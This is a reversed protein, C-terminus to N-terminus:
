RKIIVDFANNAAVSEISPLKHLIELLNEAEELDEPNEEASIENSDNLAFEAVSIPIEHEPKGLGLHVTEPSIGSQTPKTSMRPPVKVIPKQLIQHSSASSSTLSSQSSSRSMGSFRRHKKEQWKSGTMRIDQNGSRVNELAEDESIPIPSKFKDFIKGCINQIDGHSPEHGISTFMVHVKENHHAELWELCKEEDRYEIDLEIRYVLAPHDHPTNYAEWMKQVPLKKTHTFKKITNNSPMCMLENCPMERYEGIDVLIVKVKGKPLFEVIEARYYNAGCYIWSVITEVIVFSGISPWQRLQLKCENAIANMYKHMGYVQGKYSKPQDNVYIVIQKRNKNSKSAEVRSCTLFAEFDKFINQRPNQITPKSIKLKRTLTKFNGILWILFKTSFMSKFVWSLIEPCNTDESNFIKMWQLCSVASVKSNQDLFTFKEQVVQNAIIDITFVENESDYESLLDLNLHM